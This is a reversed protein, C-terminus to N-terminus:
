AKAILLGTESDLRLRCGAVEAHGSEDFTLLRYHRLLASRRWGPPPEQALLAGVLRRDSVTISRALLLRALNGNPLTNLDLGQSGAADLCPRGANGHLCVVGASPESLRTLAQHARHFDPADEERASGTMRWLQGIYGPAKLWREFAEQQDSLVQKQHADRSEDWRARLAAPLNGPCDRDDYVTEILEEVEDPIRVAARDKLVLWSRLLAHADYVAENARGFVPLGDADQKPACVWLAPLRLADPRERKHRHLRGSRQLLLDAPALDSVMLDFDLDLSQEIIQTSVLVACDPRGTEAGTKSFRALCRHERAERDEFLFRSHLLDLPLGDSASGPFYPKLRLYVQQARGVTNCIVAACGGGALARSLQEGLPFPEQEADPLSGDVWQISLLRCSQPSAPVSRAGLRVGDAWTIRPYAADPLREPAQQRGRAYAELLARGRAKPLTASLLVVSVDLAALWELLRELLTSMYTDYAHVEDIVVTKDSLGFLRVFVHRTQLVALLVQDITGVGFPALLGRKRHTFWEAAAVSAVDGAADEQCINTPAFLRNGKRLLEQFEASLAAHGHLLQLNVAHSAYRGSLFEFVRGFMQNSTAQTPLAFYCGRRGLSAAWRDALLLAAETKGEGMPAEIIVLSPGDSVDALEAAAQQIPRAARGPFLSEFSATSGAHPCAIWGLTALAHAANLRAQQWYRAPDICPAEWGKAAHPFFEENSAIWDAVSIFGALIIASPKDLREPTADRPLALTEALLRALQARADRWGADGGADEPLNQLDTASPFIGHHGGALTGLEGALERSVGFVPLTEQLARATVIGHPAKIALRPFWFGADRLLARAAPEQGQFAPCAKGLDHLGALFAVWAAAGRLGIQLSAATRARAGETLVESWMADAVAATDLMHCLLPHYAFSKEDSPRSKAWLLFLSDFARELPLSSASM